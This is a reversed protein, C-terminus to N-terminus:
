RSQADCSFNCVKGTYSGNGHDTVKLPKEDCLSSSTTTSTLLASSLADDGRRWVSVRVDAGGGVCVVGDVDRVVV